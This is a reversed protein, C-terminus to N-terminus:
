GRVGENNGGEIHSQCAPAEVLTSSEPAEEVAKHLNTGIKSRTQMIKGEAKNPPPDPQDVLMAWPAAGSSDTTHTHM